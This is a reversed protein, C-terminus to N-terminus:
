PGPTPSPAPSTLRQRQVEDARAVVGIEYLTDDAERFHVRVLDGVGVLDYGEKTVGFRHHQTVLYWVVPDEAPVAAVRTVVEDTVAGPDFWYGWFRSFLLAQVTLVGTVAVLGVVTLIRGIPPIRLPRGVADTGAILVPGALLLIVFLAFADGVLLSVLAGASLSALNTIPGAVLDSTQM